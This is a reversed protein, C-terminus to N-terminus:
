IGRAKLGHLLMLKQSVRWELTAPHKSRAATLKVAGVFDEDGYCWFETPSGFLRTKDCVLHMLLHAKPRLAFPQFRQQEPGLGERWMTYLAGLERLFTLMADRCNTENFPREECAQQFGALGDFMRVMHGLHEPERGALHHGANFRFPTRGMGQQHKHALAQAFEM